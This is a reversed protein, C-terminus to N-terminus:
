RPVGEILAEAREGLAALVEAHTNTTSVTLGVKGDFIALDFRFFACCDTERAALSAARGATAPDGRLEFRLQNAAPRTLGVADHRFLDDFEAVRLPQAETPLTCAPPAWAPGELQNRDM